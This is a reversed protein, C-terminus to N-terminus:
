RSRGRVYDTSKTWDRAHEQVRQLSLALEYVTEVVM